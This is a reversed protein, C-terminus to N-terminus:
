IVVLIKQFDNNINRFEINNVMLRLGSKFDSLEPVPPPCKILKFGFAGKKSDNLKRYFELLKWPMRKVIKEINSILIIKYQHKSLVPINKRSYDINLKKGNNHFIM